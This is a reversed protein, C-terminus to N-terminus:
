KLFDLNNIKNYLSELTSNNNLELDINQLKNIKESKHKSYINNKINERNIKIVKCNLLKGWNIEDQFRTDAIVINKNEDLLKIVQKHIRKIHFSFKYEKKNIIINKSIKNQLYDRLIDTGFTQMLYRPSVNWFNDISEKKNGWLQDDSFDFLIQLAKKLYGAFSLKIWDKKVLYDAVTDKGSGKKGALLLLVM